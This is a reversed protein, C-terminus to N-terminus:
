PTSTARNKLRVREESRVYAHIFDVPIGEKVAAQEPTLGAYEAKLQDIQAQSFAPGWATAYLGNGLSIRNCCDETDADLNLNPTIYIMEAGLQKAHQKTAVCDELRAVRRELNNM